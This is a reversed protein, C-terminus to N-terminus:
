PPADGNGAIPDFRQDPAARGPRDVERVLEAEVAPDGQLRQQGLEGGVLPEPLAEEALRPERGRELMRADERDVGGALSVADDVERHAEDFAGVEAPQDLAFAREVRLAREVQERLDRVGEVCRVPAAEDVAVHLGPVDQDVLGAADVQGVEAEGLM